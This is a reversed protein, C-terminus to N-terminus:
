NTKKKIRLLLNYVDFVIIFLYVCCVIKITLCYQIINHIHEFYCCHNLILVLPLSSLKPKLHSLWYFVNM